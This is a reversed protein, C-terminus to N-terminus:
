IDLLTAGTKSPHNIFIVATLAATTAPRHLLLLLLLTPLLLLLLFTPLLRCSSLSATATLLLVPLLSCCCYSPPCCYCSPLCAGTKAPHNPHHPHHPHHYYISSVINSNCQAGIVGRRPSTALFRTLIYPLRSRCSQGTSIRPSSM